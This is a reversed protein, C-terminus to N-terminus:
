RSWLFLLSAQSPHTRFVFMSDPHADGIGHEHNTDAGGVASGRTKYASYAGLVTEISGNYVASATTTHPIGCFSLVINNKM